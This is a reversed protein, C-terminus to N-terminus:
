PRERGSTDSPKTAVSEVVLRESGLMQEFRGVREFVVKALTAHELWGPWTPDVQWVSRSGALGAWSRPANITLQRRIVAVTGIRHAFFGSAWALAVRSKNQSYVLYGLSEAEQYSVVSADFVALAGATSWSQAVTMTVQTGNARELKLITLGDAGRGGKAGARLPLIAAVKAQSLDGQVQAQWAPPQRLMKAALSAPLKVDAYWSGAPLERGRTVGIKPRSRWYELFARRSAYDWQQEERLGLPAWAKGAVALASALGWGPTSTGAYQVGDPWHWDNELRLDSLAYRDPVGILRVVIDLRARNDGNTEAPAPMFQADIYEVSVGNIVPVTAPKARIWGSLDWSWFQVPGVIAIFGAVLLIWSSWTRRTLYQHTVTLGCILLVWVACIWVRTQVVGDALPALWAESWKLKVAVLIIAYTGAVLALTFSYLVFQGMEDTLCALAVAVSVLVAHWFVTEAAAGAVERWGYGCALWWPLAVVAPLVCLLLGVGFLKAGLLRLRSIPRTLWFVRTDVLLDEQVIWGALLYAFVIQLRWLWDDDAALRQLGGADFNRGRLLLAGLGYRGAMVAIWLALPWRVRRADKKIIHWLLRM